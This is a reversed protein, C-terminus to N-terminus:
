IWALYIYEYGISVAVYVLLLSMAINFAKFYVPKRVRGGVIAGVLAYGAPAGFALISLMLSWFLIQGGVVGVAPFQITSIPLTAILAKPNFLHMLLGDKFRLSAESNDPCEFDVEARFTQWAIKVMYGCGIISIYPLVSRDIVKEGLFSLSVFLLLMACGVGIYFGSHKALKGQIGSHFGLLNMPGPSYMVSFAYIFIELM